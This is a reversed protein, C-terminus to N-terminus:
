IFSCIKSLRDLTVNNQFVELYGTIEYKSRLSVLSSCVSFLHQEDDSGNRCRQCNTDHHNGKCNNRLPLMRSRLKFIISADSRSLDYIYTEPKITGKTSMLNTLKSMTDGNHRFMLDSNAKTVKKVMTTWKAKAIGTPQPLNYKNKLNEIHKFWKYKNKNFACNQEILIDHALCEQHTIKWLYILQRREILSQLHLSGTEALLAPRPTSNGTKLIRRLSVYQLQEICEYNNIHTWTESGYLLSPIICRHHLQILSAMKIKNMVAESSISCCTALQGELQGRKSKLHANIKLDDTITEGLYKYESCMDLIADGLYWLQHVTAGQHNFIMIKSKSVNIELRLRCLFKFTADLMKQLMNSDEALLIIDDMLLLSSLLISGYEVGLSALFSDRRM